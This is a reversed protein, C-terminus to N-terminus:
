KASVFTDTGRQANINTVTFGRLEANNAPTVVIEVNCGLINLFRLLRDYTFYTLRGRGIAAIKSSVTGLLDAAENQTLGKARIRRTIEIALDAKALEETANPIALDAFVNGSSREFAITETESNM